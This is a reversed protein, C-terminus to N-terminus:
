SRPLRVTFTSGQGPVSTATVTGGHAEVIQRVIALGLGSGGTDRTRSPDARWFRDFVHPLDGASIGQGTDAVSMVVDGADNRASVTIRGGAPTYRVANAILNGLAQTIRVPDVTLRPLTGHRVPPTHATLTVGAADAGGRHATVAQRVLDGVPVPQRDLRFAGADAEALDQLDDVIRQLQLAEALLASTLETDTVPPALGDEAAELWSRINALPTRLEHAVDNVMARRQDEARERQEAMRNLVAALTGIEDRGTVRARARRGTSHQAAATLARLPRVLRAAILVTVAITVVLVVAAAGATRVINASSLVFGTRVTGSAQSGRVFLLATPAVHPGLQTRRASAVCNHVREPDLNSGDTQQYRWTDISVGVVPPGQQGLCANVLGQLVTLAVKQSTSLYPFDAGCTRRLKEGAASVVTLLGSPSEVIQAPFGHELLCRQGDDAYRRERERDAAPLAFPGLARSDIQDPAGPLLAPDVHLPDVSAVAPGSPPPSGAIPRRDPTTLTIQWGTSAALSGVLAEVGDWSPHTAAYGVLTNYIHANQSLSQGQAEQIAQTTGRMVLWATAAISCVAILISAALLRVLLSRRLPVDADM